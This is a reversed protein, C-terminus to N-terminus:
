TQERLARTFRIGIRICRTPVVRAPLARCRDVTPASVHRPERPWRPRARKARESDRPGTARRAAQVWVTSPKAARLWATRNCPEM